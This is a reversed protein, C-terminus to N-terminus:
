GLATHIAIPRGNSGRRTPETATIVHAHDSSLLVLPLAKNFSMTPIGRLHPHRKQLMQLPYTQEMLDLGAATFAGQVKFQKRPNGKPSMKFNIKLGQLHTVDTRMTRLALTESEGDLRLQQVATSLILIRQAGDDLVAFTGVSNSDNHLLIPVVKLLVKSSTISPTMYVRSESTRSQPDTSRYQAVSHLVQLHINGCDGCPKKLNCSEPAHARACKRCRKGETMWKDLKATSQEKISPCRSIYHEKSDCFFCHTKLPKKSSASM